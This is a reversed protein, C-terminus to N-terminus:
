KKQNIRGPIRPLPIGGLEGYKVRDQIAKRVLNITQKETFGANLLSQKLAKTYELNTPIQGELKGGRRYKNWFVELSHHAKYHPSGIDTFDNGELKVAIAENSPISDRYAADQNLHHSQGVAKDNKLQGYILSGSGKIFVIHGNIWLYEFPRLPQVFVRFALLGSWRLM